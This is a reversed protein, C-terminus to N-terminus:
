KKDVWIIEPKYESPTKDTLARIVSIVIVVAGVAIMACHMYLFGDVGYKNGVFYVTFGYVISLISLIINM